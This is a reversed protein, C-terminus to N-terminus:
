SLHVHRQSEAIAAGIKLMVECVEGGNGGSALYSEVTAKVGRWVHEEGHADMWTSYQAKTLGEKEAPTQLGEPGRSYLHHLVVSPPVEAAAVVLESTELFLLRRFARLTRYPEGLQEVPFLFQGVALELEAMDRALRLKGTESLPRVLAAHRVFFVVTRSALGRQLGASLPDGSAMKSLFEARFQAASQQVEVMYSSTSGGGGDDGGGFEESHIKLVASELHAQM